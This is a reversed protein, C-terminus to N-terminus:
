AAVASLRAQSQMADEAADTSTNDSPEAARARAFALAEIAPSPRAFVYGQVLHCGLDRLIEVEGEKEAGEGQVTMGLGRGLAIIGKLLERRRESEIIGDVFMRDIKLKDFPLQTLYGLSSYDTGFDDLALTVGLDKLAKLVSRVRAEAHDALLSETLELCLLHPPLGTERLVAAVEGVLDTQWIQAASVNVAIERPPEGADLWAKAQVAAQRLIWNGLGCILSSSEAIPIFDSPPVCGHVPSNWRMLAEFGSVRGTPIDIQPQYHVSLEINDSVARRLDRALATKRQVAANMDAAFFAFCGRGDEKARYLALDANRLLTSADNGDCPMLAIGISTGISVEGRQLAISGSIAGNVARAVAEIADRDGCEPVIVAFEDGGLRALFYKRDLVRSILHTVKTLLEDGASHGLSDNVEKFRDLDLLLLAGHTGLSTSRHCAADLERRFLARNALGTLPDYFALKELQEEIQKRESIDQITGSFGIVVGSQGVLAKSTLVFDGISGDGRRFKVDVSKVTRRIAVEAHSALVLKAGNGQYLSLVAERTPRFSVPDYRLLDYVERAWTIEAQGLRYTWDGLKGLRQAEILQRLQVEGQAQSNVLAGAVAALMILATVGAVSAAMGVTNIVSPRVVVTPDPVVTVASMGTFHHACIALTLLVPALWSAKHQEVRSDAILAASGLIIGIAVSAIVYPSNWTINGPVTLAAMGTYHMMAIGCAVIVGGMAAAGDRGSLAVTRDFVKASFQAGDLKDGMAAVAYGITTVGVAFLVSLLTLMPDYATPFGPDYALMAVFHTSWIGAGTSLGTLGVWAFRRYRDHQQRVSWARRFIHFSVFAAATCIVGALVVLRLDHEGLVCALVKYM